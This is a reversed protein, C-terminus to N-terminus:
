SLAMGEYGKAAVDNCLDRYPGVGGAYVILSRQKGAINTGMYWSKTRPVLTANAVEDHHAVWKDDAQETPEIVEHGSDRVHTICDSIWDVQQQVCTPVNCFAAGPSMPPMGGMFFNPFGYVSMGIFTHIHDEWSEKLGVGNRGRIDIRTLAGTSADFGTAFILIDLAIQKGSTLTVGTETIAAIPDATVDVVDVDDRNIMDYYGWELPVRRTGFGFGKPTMLEAKVPDKVRARIKAKVFDSFEANVKEDSFVEAFSGIWFMLSGDEWLQEMAVKREVPPIDFFKRQDFEFDFGSFTKHLSERLRPYEARWRAREADDFKPNKMPITYVATRQFVSLHGCQDGITQIVQIGTAGTGIIGVRKGAFQVPEHPWRATHFCEGKFSDVGPIDPKVPASLGGAGMLLFQATVKEGTETEVVWYKNAEDWATRSVRSRFQIDRRLDFKDAVFNLYRETEAQPPFRESWNWEKLLEDSFWFQYIYSESDTRAGPYRNWYWTGGVGTGAEFVKVSLNKERCKHIAYLGTFGAGVVVVDFHQLAPVTM